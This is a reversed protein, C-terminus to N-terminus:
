PLRGLADLAGQLIWAAASQDVKGARRRRSLDMDAIMVREVAATSLREDWLAIPVERHTLLDRAFQRTAQCRKGPRGDMEVPWGLVLGGVQRSDMAALLADLDAALRRRRITDLPSAIRWDPDSVALGITRTGLDLGMLSRGRPAAAPLDALADLIM